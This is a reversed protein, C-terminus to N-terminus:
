PSSKLPTLIFLYNGGRGSPFIPTIIGAQCSPDFKVEVRDSFSKKIEQKLAEDRTPVGSAPLVVLGPANTPSGTPSGAAGSKLDRLLEGRIENKLIELAAPDFTTLTNSTTVNPELFERWAENAQQWFYVLNDTLTGATQGVKLWLHDLQIWLLDYVSALRISTEITALSHAKQSATATLFVSGTRFSKSNLMGILLFVAAVLILSRSAGPIVHRRRDNILQGSNLEWGRLYVFWHVGIRRAELDGTECWSILQALALSERKALTAAALFKKQPYDELM